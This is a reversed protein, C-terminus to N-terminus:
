VYIRDEAYDKARTSIKVIEKALAMTIFCVFVVEKCTFRHRRDKVNFDHKAPIYLLENFQFLQLRLKEPVFGKLSALNSGLSRNEHKKNNLRETSCFKILHDIYDGLDRVADRTHYPLYSLEDNLYFMPRKPRIGVKEQLIEIASWKGKKPSSIDTSLKNAEFIERKSLLDEALKLVEPGIILYESKPCTERM